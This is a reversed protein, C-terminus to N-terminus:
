GFDRSTVELQAGANLFYSLRPRMAASDAMLNRRVHVRLGTASASQDLESRLGLTGDGKVWGYWLMMGVDYCTNVTPKAKETASIWWRGGRIM